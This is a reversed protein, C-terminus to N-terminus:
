GSRSSSSPPPSSSASSSSSVPTSSSRSRHHAIIIIITNSNSSIITNPKKGVTKPMRQRGEDQARKGNRHESLNIFFPTKAHSTRWFHCTPSTLEVEQYCRRIKLGGPGMKPADQATKPKDQAWRPDIKPWRPPM